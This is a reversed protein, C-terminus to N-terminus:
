SLGLEEHIQKLEHRVNKLDQQVNELDKGRSMSEDSLRTVVGQLAIM